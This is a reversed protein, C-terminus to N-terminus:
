RSKAEFVVKGGVITMDPQLEDIRDDAVAMYDGNLVVLDAYKGREISGLMKEEGIFRAAAITVMRLAQTRNVAQDKGWTREQTAAGGARRARESRTAYRAM